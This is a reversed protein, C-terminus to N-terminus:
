VVSLTFYGLAEANIGMARGSFALFDQFTYHQIALRLREGLPFREGNWVQQLMWNEANRNFLGECDTCLVYDTVQKSTTATIKRGVLTPNRNKKSEDPDRLYKYMARPIFHSDQLAKQQLCLKCVGFLRNLEEFDIPEM